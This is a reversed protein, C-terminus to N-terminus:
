IQGASEPAVVPQPFFPSNHFHQVLQHIYEFKKIIMESWVFPYPDKMGMSRNLSNLTAGLYLWKNKMEEISLSKESLDIQRSAGKEWVNIGLNWSKATELVDTMHMYHAWTEAFDEWPHASAYKTIHDKPWDVSPGHKYYKKLAKSYDLEETGFLARFQSLFDPHTGVLIFWYYHGIEHRFHGLLTRYRENMDLRMKERIADNAEAINLTIKGQNHGTIVHITEKMDESLKNALFSFSLGYAENEKKNKVPLGLRFLSYILRRKAIELRKWLGLNEPISLDPTVDNFSCSTCTDSEVTVPIMWNCVGLADNKCKKYLAGEASPALAKYINEGQSSLASMNDLFPLYGLDSGCQLCLTNEFYIIQECTDCYYIKL